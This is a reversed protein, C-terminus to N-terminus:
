RPAIVFGFANSQGGGPPPNSVSVPLTGISSLLDAPLVAELQRPSIFRTEVPRSAVTVISTLVFGAGELRLIPGESGAKASKPEIDTLVPVPNFSSSFEQLPYPIAISYDRHYDTDILVGDKIVAAIKKTNSIKALPDGDIIILDALKNPEVTGILDGKGILEAPFKTAAQIAQMPTLGADVLLELEHHLSLGPTMSAGASDSGVFLKGGAKVLDRVFQQAKLYGSRFERQAEPPLKSLPPFLGFRSAYNRVRDFMALLGLRSDAPIYQLEPKSVLRYVELQHELTRPTLSAHENILLPNVYVGESVLTRILEERAEGKIYDYPCAIKGEHFHKLEQPTMCSSAIGWLHTIGDIGAKAAAPADYTHGVVALGSRHAEDAVARLEEASLEQYVKVFDIGKEILARTEKRAEEVGRVITRNHRSRNFGGGGMTARPGDSSGDIINGSVYLRPGRILGRSTAQRVALIWDTPNGMDFVSTVGHALFLEGVWDRYHVHADILGPLIFKGAANVVEAGAPPAIEGSRGVRMIKGNEILIVADALPPRGTGDILTGGAILMFGAGQPRPADGRGPRYAATLVVIVALFLLYFPKPRQGM